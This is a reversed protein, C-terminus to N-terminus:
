PRRELRELVIPGPSAPEDGVRFAAQIREAGLSAGAEDRAHVLCLPRDPGVTEGIGAVRTVGVGLDIEDDPRKRGGGIEVLAHGIARADMGQVVGPREPEVQHIVPAVPLHGAAPDLIDTPGGLAAVMREFREAGSGDDLRARALAKGAAVDPALGAMVVMEATVALVLELVRPDAARGALLDIAETVAVANGVSTGLVADLDTLLMVSPLGAGSAVDAMATALERADDISAMFAGSGSGVCIVYGNAGSALKKSMISSTILPVSEVTATVDRVYYLKRDAPAIDPTPGIIACGVDRVVELFREAGPSTEYGPISDLLDVEGATFDLGRASINPANVGCAAALPAVILTVKEDGVGGSSHKEVLRRDDLGDPGWDLIRGSDRMALALAVTERSSMGNLYVAMLFAGVQGESIAGRTAGDIFARIEADSLESRDRKRRIVDQPLISAPTGTRETSGDM